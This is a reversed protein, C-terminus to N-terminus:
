KTQYDKVEKGDYALLTTKRDSAIKDHFAAIVAEKDPAQVIIIEAGNNDEVLQYSGLGTQYVYLM